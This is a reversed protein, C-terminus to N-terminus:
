EKVAVGHQLQQLRDQFNHIGAVPWETVDFLFGIKVRGVVPIGDNGLVAEKALPKDSRLLTITETPTSTTTM